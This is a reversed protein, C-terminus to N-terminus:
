GRNRKRMRGVARAMEERARKHASFAEEFRGADFLIEARLLLARPHHPALALARDVEDEASEAEGRGALWTALRLRLDADHPAAETARAFAAAARFDGRRAFLDAAVALSAAALPGPRGIAEAFDYAAGDEDGLALRVMGAELRRRGSDEGAAFVEEFRAADFIDRLREEGAAFAFPSLDDSVAEVAAALRARAVHFEGLAAAVRATAVLLRTSPPRLAVRRELRALAECPRGSRELLGSLMLIANEDEATPAVREYAAIAVDRTPHAVSPGRTAPDDNRGKEVILLNRLRSLVRIDRAKSVQPFRGMRDADDIADFLAKAYNMSTPLRDGEGGGFSRWYSSSADEVIYIGGDALHPFLLEFSAIVDASRHSGDDVVIDFRGFEDVLAAVFAPDAQSGRRTEIREADSLRKDFLDVGVIVGNPFYDRWMRLSAGGVHPDHYGGVGIELVTVPRDRFRHLWRHYHPTYFHVGFKDTGRAIALQSLPDLSDDM